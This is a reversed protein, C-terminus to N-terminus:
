PGAVVRAVLGEIGMAQELTRAERSVMLQGAYHKESVEVSHGLRKASSFSAADGFIGPANCSYTACTSRLLQWTFAKPAGYSGILRRRAAEAATKTMPHKGGFVYAARGKDAKMAELLERVSPSVDLRIARAMKTKVDSAKLRIEGVRKGDYDLAALDVSEWRLALAEERRFGCLLTVLVLPAIPEYRRTTGREGQGRHEARTESFTEADHELAAKLLARLEATRLFEPAEKPVPVPKLGDSIADTTLSVMGRARWHNLLTKLARLHWNVTSPSLLHDSTKREGRKGGAVYGRKRKTLLHDRFGPLAARTLKSTSDLRRALAWEEFEGIATRYLTVTQPRLRKEEVAFYEAIAKSLEAARVRDGGADIELRRRQLSKSKRVCWDERLEATTLDAPIKEKTMRGSDPDRFRARWGIRREEDPKILVVGPHRKGRRKKTAM